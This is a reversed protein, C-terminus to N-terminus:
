LYRPQTRFSGNGDYSPYIKMMARAPISPDANQSAALRFLRLFGPLLSSPNFSLRIRLPKKRAPILFIGKDADLKVDCEFPKEM